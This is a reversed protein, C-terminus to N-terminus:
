ALLYRFGLTAGRFQHFEVVVNGGASLNEARRFVAGPAAIAASARHPGRGALEKVGIRLQGAHDNRNVVDRRFLFELLLDHLAFSQSGHTRHDASNGVLKIIGEGANQSHALKQLITLGRIRRLLM